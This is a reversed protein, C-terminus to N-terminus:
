EDSSGHGNKEKEYKERFYETRETLENERLQFDERQTKLKKKNSVFLLIAAVAAVTSVAATLKYQRLSEAQKESEEKLREISEDKEENQERLLECESSLEKERPNETTAAAKTTETKETTAPAKTAEDKETSESTKGTTATAIEAESEYPCIGDPHQHAPYGHHYHYEGTSRDYHGGNADTKGPHAAGSIPLFLIWLITLFLITTRKM